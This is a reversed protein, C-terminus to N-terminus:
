PRHPPEAVQRRKALYRDIRAEEGRGTILVYLLLAAFGALALSGFAILGVQTWFGIPSEAVRIVSRRWTSVGTALADAVSWVGYAGGIATLILGAWLTLRNQIANRM